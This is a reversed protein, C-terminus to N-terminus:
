QTVIVKAKMHPHLSCFYDFEGPVAFTFTYTDGTDLPKSRFSKDTAVVTHPIDDENDFTVATGAKVTLVEPNFTFNDIQVKVEEARSPRAGLCALALAAAVVGRRSTQVSM